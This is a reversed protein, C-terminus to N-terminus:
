SYLRIIKGNGNNQPVSFISNSVDPVASSIEEFGTVNDKSPVGFYSSLSEAPPSTPEAETNPVRVDQVPLVPPDAVADVPTVLPLPPDPINCAVQFILPSSASSGTSQVGETAKSPENIKQKKKRFKELKERAKSLKDERDGM